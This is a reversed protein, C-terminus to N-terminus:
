AALQTVVPLVSVAQRQALASRPRPFFGQEEKIPSGSIVQVTWMGVLIM